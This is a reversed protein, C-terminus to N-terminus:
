TGAPVGALRTPFSRSNRTRNPNLKAGRRTYLRRQGGHDPVAVCRNRRRESLEEKVVERLEGHGGQFARPGLGGPGTTPVNGVHTLDGTGKPISLAELDGALVALIAWSPDHPLV